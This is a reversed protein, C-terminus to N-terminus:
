RTGGCGRYKLCTLGQRAGQCVLTEDAWPYGERCQLNACERPPSCERSPQCEPLMGHCNASYYDKESSDKALRSGPPGCAVARGGGGGIGVAGDAPSGTGSSNPTTDGQKPTTDRQRRRAMAGERGGRRHRPGQRDCSGGPALHRRPAVSSVGGTRGMHTHTRTHTHTHTHTRTYICIYM